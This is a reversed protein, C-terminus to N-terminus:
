SSPFRIDRRSHSCQSSFSYSGSSLFLDQRSGSEPPVTASGHVCRVKGVGDVPLEADETVVALLDLTVNAALPVQVKARVSPMGVAEGSIRVPLPEPQHLLRLM